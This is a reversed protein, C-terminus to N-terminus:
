STKKVKKALRSKKRNGTNEKLWGSKVAKDVSQQFKVMLTKIEDTKGAEVSKIIKKILDKLFKKENVNKITRKKVKRLDKKASKTNPM